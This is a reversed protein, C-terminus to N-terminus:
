SSILTDNMKIQLFEQQGKGAKRVGGAVARLDDEQLQRQEHKGSPNRGKSASKKGGQKGTKVMVLLYTRCGVRGEGSPAYVLPQLLSALPTAGDRGQSGVM